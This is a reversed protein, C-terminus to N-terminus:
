ARSTTSTSSRWRSPGRADAQSAVLRAFSEDFFGRNFLGTLLDRMSDLWFARSRVVVTAHIITAVAILQLRSIQSGVPLHRLDARGGVGGARVPWGPSSPATNCCPPPAPRWACGRTTACGPAPWRWSTCRTTCWATPPSSRGGPWAPLQRLRALHGRRRVPQHCLRAVCPPVDRAALREFWVAFALAVAISALGLWNEVQSPNALSARSRCWRWCCCCAGAPVPRRLPRGVPRSRPQDPRELRGRRPCRPPLPATVPM